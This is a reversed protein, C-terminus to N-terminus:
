VRRLKCASTVFIILAIAGSQHRRRLHRHCHGKSTFREPPEVSTQPSIATEQVARATEEMVGQSAKMIMRRAGEGCQAFADQWYKAYANQVEPLTKCQRLTDLLQQSAYVRVALFETWEKCLNMTDSSVMKGNLESM